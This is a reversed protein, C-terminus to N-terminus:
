ISVGCATRHGGGRDFAIFKVGQPLQRRCKAGIGQSRL